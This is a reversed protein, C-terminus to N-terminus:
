TPAVPFDLRPRGRKRPRLLGRKGAIPAKRSCQPCRMGAIPENVPRTEQQDPLLTNMMNTALTLRHRGRPMGALKRAEALAAPVLALDTELLAEQEADLRHPPPQAPDQLKEDLKVELPGWAKGLLRVVNM